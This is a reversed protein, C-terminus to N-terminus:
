TSKLIRIVFRQLNDWRWQTCLTRDCAARRNFWSPFDSLKNGEAFCLYLVRRGKFGFLQPVQSVHAEYWVLVERCGAPNCSRVSWLSDVVAKRGSETRRIHKVNVPPQTVLLVTVRHHRRCLPRLYLTLICCTWICRKEGWVKYDLLLCDVSKGGSCIADKTEPLCHPSITEVHDTTILTTNVGKLGWLFFSQKM